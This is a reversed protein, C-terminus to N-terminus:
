DKGREKPYTLYLNKQLYQKLGFAKAVKRTKFQSM